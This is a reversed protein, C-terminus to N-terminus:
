VTLLQRVRPFASPWLPSPVHRPDCLLGSGSGLVLIPIGVPMVVGVYKPLGGQTRVVKQQQSCEAWSDWGEPTPYPTLVALEPEQFSATETIQGLCPIDTWLEPSVSM